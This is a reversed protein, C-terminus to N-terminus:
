NVKIGVSKLDKKLQDVGKFVFGRIGLTKASEVLEPRDDTYFINKPEVTLLEISKEYIPSKPKRHGVQCSTIIHPFIDFVSFKNKLYEFHLVNINSLVAIKYKDALAKAVDYVGRNKDSLFFIENWIPMFDEYKLTADLLEKVKAFFDGPSIRGEEFMETLQSDFFLDFIEQPTKRTFSAIRKAAIRHDFDVLVNGLDFIVAKIKDNAM